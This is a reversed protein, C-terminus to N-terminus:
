PAYLNRSRYQFFIMRRNEEGMWPYAGHAQASALFILVDGAQMAVHKVLGMENECTRIGDPMPYHTKHTGPVCVFGGDERKVDRLQWAVNLYEAYVRGNQQRYHNTVKSPTAPSHLFHGSSGKASLFGSCQMCEFGSGMIWNLRQVLAPDAIMRQFPEGHPAPLGWPDGMSSRGVGSGALPTSDGAASGGHSIRDPNADIAENAARLWDEDMVGRLVLHGCLDWHFFEKEDVESDPDRIYISPHSIGPEEALWVKEGDSHVVPPPYSRNPNHLVLRQVEDLDATWEPMAREEGEIESDAGPRVGASIYGCELLRQPGEGRWPRLGRMLSDACIMLDGAQLVPEEVLGMEDSGDILDRPAEVTSNHSASVVVLGGDGEGMDTLAWFARVGQCFRIGNYQRYARSWDVWESGGMLPSKGTCEGVLRLSEDLRFGEGCIQEVYGLLVPHERLAHLANCIPSTWRLPGEVPGLQDLAQNCAKLEAASLAGPVIMYGAVDFRYNEENTMAQQNM